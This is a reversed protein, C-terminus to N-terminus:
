GIAPRDYGTGPWVRPLLHNRGRQVRRLRHAREVLLAGLEGARQFRDAVVHHDDLRIAAWLEGGVEAVLVVGHPARASDLQALGDIADTDSPVADRLTLAPGVPEIAQTPGLMREFFLIHTTAGMSGNDIQAPPTVDPL